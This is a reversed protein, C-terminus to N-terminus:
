PYMGPFVDPRVQSRDAAGIAEVAENTRGAQEAWESDLTCIREFRRTGTIQIRRCTFTDGDSVAGNDPLAAAREALTPAHPSACASLTLVASGAILAALFRTM